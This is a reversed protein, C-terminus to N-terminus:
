ELDSTILMLVHSKGTGARGDVNVLLQSPNQGALHQKYHHIVLDYLHRQQTELSEPSASSDVISPRPFDEKMLAWFDTQIYDHTGIHTSWDMERDITREGLLDPDEVRTADDRNPLQRALAEWSDPITLDNENDSEEHTSEPQVLKEGYHDGEHSCSLQCYAYADMYSTFSIGEFDLANEIARFPHYLMLKVRAFDEPQKEADYIPFYNIVRQPTARRKYKELSSLGRRVPEDDQDEVNVFNAPQDTEPRCDMTITVRSSAQLPLDLLFHLVEQASWDREGILHNMM